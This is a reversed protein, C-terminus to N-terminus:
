YFDRLLEGGTGMMSIRLKDSLGSYRVTERGNRVMDYLVSESGVLVVLSKARTVATYLLNRTILVQPGQFVPIIVAPYESGQSKHITIAFAPEIEDLLSFDYEVIKEDELLVTVTQEEENISRIVGTDGNFVGTGEQNDPFTRVWRLGYNNRIQMVRDGERFIFDRFARERKSKDPPNLTKQLELNLSIVGAPGKRTPTLV